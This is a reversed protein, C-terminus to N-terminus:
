QRATFGALASKLTAYRRRSVPVKSGDKMICLYSSGNTRVQAIQQLRVWHSRHVQVGQIPALLNVCDVFKRSLMVNAQTTRLHVYHDNASLSVLDNGVDHSLEPFISQLQPPKGFRATIYTHRLITFEAAKVVAVVVLTTLGIAPIAVRRLEDWYGTPDPPPRKLALATLAELALSLPAMFIPMLLVAAIVARGDSIGIRVAGIALLALIAIGFALHLIWNLLAWVFPMERTAGPELASLIIACSLIMAAGIMLRHRGEGTNGRVFSLLNDLKLDSFM